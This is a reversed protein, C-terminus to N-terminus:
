LGALHRLRQIVLESRGDPFVWELQDVFAQDVLCGDIEDQIFERVEAPASALAALLEERGDM